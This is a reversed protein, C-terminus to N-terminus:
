SPKCEELTRETKSCFEKGMVKEVADYCLGTLPDILGSLAEYLKRERDTQTKIGKSYAKQIMYEVQNEMYFYGTETGKPIKSDLKMINELEVKNLKKASM